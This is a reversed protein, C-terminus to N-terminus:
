YGALSFESIYHMEADYMMALATDQFCTIAIGWRDKSSRNCGLLDELPGEM